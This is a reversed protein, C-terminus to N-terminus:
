DVHFQKVMGHALHPKGDKSDPVFCILAYDGPTLNAKIMGSHGPAMPSVGGRASAPPPGEPKMAWAVFDQASKGPALKVLVVEHVQPGANDVKIVREGAKIAGSLAFDYDKLTMTVDANPATATSATGTVSIPRVMGKMMHPKGDAGPIVCVMAYNGPEVVQFEQTEGGPDVANPGGVLEVWAPPMDGKSEKQLDEMTKGPALKLLVVHHLEKGRNVLRFTTPGSPISAPADFAYDTATVTVVSNGADPTATEAAAPPVSPKDAAPKSESPSCAAMLALGVALM